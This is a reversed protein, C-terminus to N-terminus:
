WRREPDPETWYYAPCRLPHGFHGCSASCWETNRDHTGYYGKRFYGCESCKKSWPWFQRILNVLMYKFFKKM